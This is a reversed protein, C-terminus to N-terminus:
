GKERRQRRWILYGGLAAVPIGVAAVVILLLDSLRSPVAISVGGSFPSENGSDDVATVVYSYTAGPEVASDLFQLTGSAPVASPTRRVFPGGSPGGRYVHYGAVDASPSPNWSVRVTVESVLIGAVGTPPAPPTTDIVEFSGSRSGINGAGDTAWVTFDYAGKAFFSENAYWLNGGAQAMTLNTDFLPGVVHASVRSVGTDDNVVATINVNGGESQVGPNALALTVTPSVTDAAGGTTFTWLHPALLANGPDSEDRATTNVQGGYTTFPELAPSPIFTTQQSDPSWSTTGPLWQGSDVRVVGFSSVSATATRNMGESWMVRVQANTSVGTAGSAPFTSAVTPAVSDIELPATTRTTRRGASDIATIEIAVDTASFGTPTWSVVNPNATGPIPGAITGTVTGGNRTFNAWVTLATSPETGGLNFVIDHAVGGTWSTSAGPVSIAVTPGRTIWTGRMLSGTPNCVSGCHLSCYYAFTGAVTADFEFTTTGASQESLPEAVDVIGDGDYDIWFTHLIGDEATLDLTVHDGADVSLTPGPNTEAGPTTSWGRLNGFLQFSVVAGRATPTELSLLGAAVGVLLVAVAIAEIGARRM